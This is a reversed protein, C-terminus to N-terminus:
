NSKLMIEIKRLADRKKLKERKEYEKRGRVLGIELKVLDGKNYMALPVLTLGRQEVKGRLEEIEKRALLLKRTRLSDYNEDSSYEYKNIQVGVLFMENDKIIVRGGTLSVAGKKVSKVELGLLKIGAEFKELVEYDFGAKKNVIKM